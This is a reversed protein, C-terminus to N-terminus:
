RGVVLNLRRASQRERTARKLDADSSAAARTKEHNTSRHYGEGASEDLSSWGLREAAEHLKRTCTCGAAVLVLDEELEEGIATGGVALDSDPWRLLPTVTEVWVHIPEGTNQHTADLTAAANVSVPVTETPEQALAAGITAILLTFLM